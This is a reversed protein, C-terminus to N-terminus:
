RTALVHQHTDVAHRMSTVRGQPDFRWLHVEATDRVSRGTAKVRVAVSVVAAVLSEDGVVQVVQFDEFELAALSAFFAGVGERGKRPMLWPVGHDVGDPEWAVDPTLRELIAPVDGRGFAEYIGKVTAVNHIGSAM